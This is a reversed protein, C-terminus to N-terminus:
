RRAVCMRVCSLALLKLPVDTWASYLRRHYGRVDGWGPCLRRVEANGVRVSSERGDGDRRCGLRCVRIVEGVRDCGGVVGGRCPVLLRRTRRCARARCAASYRGWWM